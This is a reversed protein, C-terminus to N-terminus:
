IIALTEMENEFLLLYKENNMTVETGATASYLITDNEKLWEVTQGIAIITGKAVKEKVTDPIIIGGDTTRNEEVIPKVLVRKGIPQLTM